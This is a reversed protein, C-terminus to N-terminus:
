KNGKLRSTYAKLSIFDMIGKIKKNAREGPRTILSNGAIQVTGEPDEVEINFVCDPKPITKTKNSTCVVVFTNKTEKLVIGKLGIYSPSNSFYVVILAGHYDARSLRAQIEPLRKENQLLDSIYDKWLLNLPVFDEYSLNKPIMKQLRLRVKRSVKPAQPNFSQRPTNLKNKSKETRGLVFTRKLTQEIERQVRTAKPFVRRIYQITADYETQNLPKSNITGDAKLKRYIGSSGPFQENDSM